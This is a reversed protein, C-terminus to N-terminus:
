VGGYDLILPYYLFRTKAQIEILSSDLQYSTSM